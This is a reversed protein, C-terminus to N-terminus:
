KLFLGRIVLFFNKFHFLWKNVNLRIIKNNLFNLFIVCTLVILQSIEILGTEEGLFPHKEFDLFFMVIILFIIFFKMSFIKKMKLSIINKSM